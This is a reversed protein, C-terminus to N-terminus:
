ALRGGGMGKYKKYVARFECKHHETCERFSGLMLWYLWVWGNIFGAILFGCWAKKLTQNLFGYTFAQSHICTCTRWRWPDPAQDCCVQQAPGHTHGWQLALLLIQPSPMHVTIAIVLRMGEFHFKGGSSTMYLYTHISAHVRTHQECIHTRLYSNRLEFPDTAYVVLRILNSKVSCWSHEVLVGCRIKIDLKPTRPITRVGCAHPLRATPSGYDRPNQAM